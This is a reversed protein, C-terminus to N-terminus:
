FLYITFLALTLVLLGFAEASSSDYLELAGKACLWGSLSALPTIILFRLADGCLARRQRQMAPATLWETLPKPLHELTLEFHCLECRSTRSASLWRELCARHVTALSGACECPLVLYGANTGEHCIRCFPEESDLSSCSSDPIGSGILASCHIVQAPSVPTDQVVCGTQAKVLGKVLM